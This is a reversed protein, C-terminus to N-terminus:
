QSLSAPPVANHSVFHSIKASTRHLDTLGLIGVVIIFDGASVDDGVITDVIYTRNVRRRICYPNALAAAIRNGMVLNEVNVMASDTHPPGPSIPLADHLSLTYIETIA